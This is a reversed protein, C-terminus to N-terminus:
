SNPRGALYLHRIEDDTMSRDLLLFEDVRGNLNRIRDNKLDEPVWNGLEVPGFNLPVRKTIPSTYVREGDVFHAVEGSEDNYVCAIHIWRGLDTPKLVSESLYEQSQLPEAEVGLLLQGNNTFQWHPEGVEHGDTLFISGLRRDFGDIRIWCSLTISRFEGPISLRVRDEIGKFELAVKGPWRGETWRCGVIAGNLSALKSPGNNHLVRSSPKAGDFGYYLVVHSDTQWRKSQQQWASFRSQGVKSQIKLMREVDVFEDSNAAIREEAGNGSTRLGAGIRLTEPVSSAVQNRIQDLDFLEVEGQFVHVESADGDGVSVGFETGLDVARHHPTDVSFGKAQEPVRVRLRGRHCVILKTSKLDLEAPGEVVVNAGSLFELQVLGSKLEFRGSRVPAGITLPTVGSGTADAVSALVAVSDASMRNFNDAIESEPGPQETARVVARSPDEARKSTFVLIALVVSAAAATFFAAFVWHRRGQFVGSSPFRLAAPRGAVVPPAFTLNSSHQFDLSLLAHLHMWKCYAELAQPDEALRERLREVDDTGLAGDVLEGLLQVLDEPM